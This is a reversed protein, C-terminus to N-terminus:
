DPHGDERRWGTRTATQNRQSQPLGNGAAAVGNAVAASIDNFTNIETRKPQTRNKTPHALTQQQQNGAGSGASDQTQSRAGARVSAREMEM